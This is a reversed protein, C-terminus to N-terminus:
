RGSHSSRCSNKRGLSRSRPPSFSTPAESVLSDLEKRTGGADIWDSLDGKEPLDPLDLVKVCAAIGLLSEAVKLVHKRGAEDNDPVLHRQCRGPPPHLERAMETGGDLM